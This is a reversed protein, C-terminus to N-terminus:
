CPFTITFYALILEEPLFLYTYIAVYRMLEPLCVDFFYVVIFIDLVIMNLFNKFSKLGIGYFSPLQTFDPNTNKM